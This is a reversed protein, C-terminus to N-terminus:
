TGALARLARGNASYTRLTNVKAKHLTECLGGLSLMTILLLQNLQGEDIGGISTLRGLSINYTKCADAIAQMDPLMALLADEIVQDSYALSPNANILGASVM